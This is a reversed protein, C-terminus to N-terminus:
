SGVSGVSSAGARGIGSLRWRLGTARQSRRDVAQEVAEASGILVLAKKARSVATYLTERTLLPSAAPPLVVTVADFQSGQSRHVTLAHMPRAAGLRGLPMLRAEHGVGPFAAVLENDRRVVVGTDGNLLDNDYDNETVLLPCGFFWGDRRITEGFHQAVWRRVLASWEDIGRYGSHHACLLRHRDLAALAGATDVARLAALQDLVLERVVGLPEGAVRQDDAVDFFRLGQAGSQLVDTVAEARGSKIAKTLEDLVGTQRHVETLLVVGDGLGEPADAAAPVQDHPVLAFIRNTAAASRGAEVAPEVVDALVAGAEVATLQDPDGVLVLRCNPRLAQLLRAFLSLSLMSAEDVVVVDYPLPDARGYRTRSTGRRLGLLRHLTSARFDRLWTREDDTLEYSTIVAEGLSEVLRAAAKATPAALAVRPLQPASDRIAALLRSVTTTKGTGPGGGLVSVTSIACIAAAVRQEDPEQGVHEEDQGLPQGLSNLM